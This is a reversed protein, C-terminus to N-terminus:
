LFCGQYYELWVVALVAYVAALCWCGVETLWHRRFILFVASTFTLLAFKYAALAAPSDLLRRALPNLEEFQGVRNALITLILDFVNLMWLCLLLLVVRRARCAAASRRAERLWHM